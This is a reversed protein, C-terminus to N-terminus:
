EGEPGPAPVSDLGRTLCVEEVCTRPITVVVNKNCYLCTVVVDATGQASPDYLPFRIHFPKECECCNVRFTKFSKDDKSM